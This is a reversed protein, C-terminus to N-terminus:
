RRYDNKGKGDEDVPISTFEYKKFIDTMKGCSSCNNYRFSEVYETMDRGVGCIGILTGEFYVPSKFVELYKMEGKVKGSELFRGEKLTELIITDSNRCDTGFTHENDGWIQKARTSLEMDNMGIPEPHLLLGERIKKNAFMYKGNVDKLWLMDPIAEAVVDLITKHYKTDRRLSEVEKRLGEKVEKIDKQLLQMNCILRDLTPTEHHFPSIEFLYNKARICWETFQRNISHLM